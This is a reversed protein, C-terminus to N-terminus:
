FDTKNNLNKRRTIWGKKIADANKGKRAISMNKRAELSRKKGTNAIAIKAVVERPTKKGIHAASMNARAELSAKRGTKGKKAISM